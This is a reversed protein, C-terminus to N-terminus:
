FDAFVGTSVYRSNRKAPNATPADFNSVDDAGSIRPLYPARLKRQALAEWDFGSFWPHAKVEAAGGSACGLRKAPSRTLLRKILDRLDQPPHTPTSRFLM